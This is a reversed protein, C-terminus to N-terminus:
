QNTRWENDSMYENLDALIEVLKVYHDRVKEITYDTAELQKVFRDIKRKNEGNIKKSLSHLLSKINIVLEKVQEQNENFAGLLKSLESRFGQLTIIQKPLRAKRIYFNELSVVKYLTFLTFLFGLISAWDAVNTVSV